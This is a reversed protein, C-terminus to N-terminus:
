HKTVQIIRTLKESLLKQYFPDDLMSLHAEIVQKQTDNDVKTESLIIKYDNLAKNFKEVHLKIEDDSIKETNIKVEQKRMLKVKGIAIQESAIIGEKILSM